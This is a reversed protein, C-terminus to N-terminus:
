KYFGPIYKPIVLDKVDKLISLDALSIKGLYLDRLDGGEEVFEQIELFGELYLVDKTFAGKQSTDWLGRKVRVCSKWALNDDLGINKLYNFVDVFSSTLAKKAALAYIMPYYFRDLNDYGNIMENYTALGEETRLYDATGWLISYPQSSANESRFVHTNVEHVIIKEVDRESFKAFENIFFLKRGGDVSVDSANGKRFFVSWKDLSYEKFVTLLRVKLDKANLTKEDEVVERNNYYNRAVEVVEDSVDSYLKRSRSSFERSQFKELSMEKEYPSYMDKLTGVQVSDIFDLMKLLYNKKKNILLAVASGSDVVVDSILSRMHETNLENSTYEFVPNEVCGSNFFTKKAEEINLPRIKELISIQSAIFKLDADSKMVSEAVGFDSLQQTPDILFGDLDRRGIIIKYKMEKRDMVNVTTDIRKGGLFLSLAALKRKNSGSAAIVTASGGSFKLGLSKFLELDISTRDAGSDIKAEINQPIGSASVVNVDAVTGLIRSKPMVTYGVDRDSFFEKALEIGRDITKISLGEVQELRKRLPAQNANQIELGPQANIEMVLPGREKDIVIDVGVFGIETASQVKLALRLVEDWEPIAFNVALDPLTVFAGERYAGTVAGTAVNLGVMMGSQHANALGTSGLAPIRLMAMVPVGNFVIVRIDPVGTFDFVGFMPDPDIKEEIMVTDNGYDLSFDGDLINDLHEELMRKSVLVKNPLNWSGSKRKTLILIGNGRSGHVPKVVFSDPLHSWDRDFVDGKREIVDLLNVVPIDMQSLLGKTYLKDNALLISEHSNYKQVYLDRANIGLIDM